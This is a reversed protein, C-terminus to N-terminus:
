SLSMFAKKEQDTIIWRVDEDLWKKYATGIEQKLEKQQKFREKDSLQRKLPDQNDQQNQTSDQANPTSSPAQSQAHVAVSGAGALLAILIASCLSFRNGSM